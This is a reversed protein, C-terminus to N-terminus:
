KKKKKKINVLLVIKTAICYFGESPISIKSIFLLLYKIQLNCDYM